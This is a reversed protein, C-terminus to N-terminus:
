KAQVKSLESRVKETIYGIDIVDLLRIRHLISPWLYESVRRLMLEALIRESPIPQIVTSIGMGFQVLRQGRLDAFLQWSLRSLPSLSSLMRDCIEICSQIARSGSRRFERM